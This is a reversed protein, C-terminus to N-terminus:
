GVWWLRLMKVCALSVAPDFLLLPTPNLLGVGAHPFLAHADDVILLRPKAQAKTQSPRTPQNLRAFTDVLTAAESTNAM